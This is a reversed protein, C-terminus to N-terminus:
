EVTVKGSLAISEIMLSFTQVKKVDVMYDYSGPGIFCLSAVAGQPIDNSIFVQDENITFNSPNECARTVQRASFVIKVEGPLENLWIVTTGRKIILAQPKLGYM